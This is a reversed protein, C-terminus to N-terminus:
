RGTFFNDIEEFSISCGSYRLKYLASRLVDQKGKFKDFFGNEYGFIALETSRVMVMGNTYSKFEGLKRPNVSLSQRFEDRLHSILLHPNEILMRTTREDILVNTGKGYAILEAEGKQILKLQKGDLSVINNALALVRDREQELHSHETLEVVRDNVLQNIMHASFSYERIHLPRLVTEAYIAPTILFKCSYKSKLYYLVNYICSNTLSILSSSDCLFTVM